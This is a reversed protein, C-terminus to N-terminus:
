IITKLMKILVIHPTKDDCFEEAKKYGLSEYLNINKTSNSGTFLFYQKANPFKLEIEQLLKRGIGMNQFKPDVMLKGIWCQGDNERAKVSGIIKNEYEAKLFIYNQYDSRISEITQTLPEIDYNNYLEAESLFATKQLKLISDLDCLVATSIKINENMIM